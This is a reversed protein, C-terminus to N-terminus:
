KPANTMQVSVSARQMQSNVSAPHSLVVNGRRLKASFELRVRFSRIIDRFVITVLLSDKFLGATDVIVESVADYYKGITLVILTLVLFAEIGIFICSIQEEKKVAEAEAREDGM